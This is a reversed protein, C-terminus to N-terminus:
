SLVSASSRKVRYQAEHLAEKARAWGGCIRAAPKIIRWDIEVTRWDVDGATNLIEVATERPHPDGQFALIKAVEALMVARSM